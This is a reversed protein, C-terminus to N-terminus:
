VVTHRGVQDGAHEKGVPFDGSRVRLQGVDRGGNEILEADLVPRAHDAPAYKLISRKLAAISPMNFAHNAAKEQAGGSTPSPTSDAMMPTAMSQTKPLVLLWFRM